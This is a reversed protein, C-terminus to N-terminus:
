YFDAEDEPQEELENEEVYDMADWNEDDDEEEEHKIPKKKVEEKKEAKKPRPM